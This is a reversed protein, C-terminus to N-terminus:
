KKMMLKMLAEMSNANMGSKRVMAVIDNVTSESVPLNAMKAVQKILQRLQAESEVTSPKVTSAVKKIQSETINKGAKKNIANLADKPIKNNTM